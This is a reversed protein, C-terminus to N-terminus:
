WKSGLEWFDKKITPYIKVNYYLGNSPNYITIEDSKRNREAESYTKYGKGMYKIQKKYKFEKEKEM